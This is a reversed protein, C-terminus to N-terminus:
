MSLADAVAVQQAVVSEYLHTNTNSHQGTVNRIMNPTVNVSNLLKSVAYPRFVGCSMREWLM